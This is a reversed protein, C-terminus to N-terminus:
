TLRRALYYQEGDFVIQDFRGWGMAQESKGIIRGDSDYFSDGYPRVLWSPGEYEIPQYEMWDVAARCEDCLIGAADDLVVFWDDSAGDGTPTEIDNVLCHPCLGERRIDDSYTM